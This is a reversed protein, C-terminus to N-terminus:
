GSIAFRGIMVRTLVISGFDGTEILNCLRLLQMLVQWLVYRVSSKVSWFGPGTPRIECNFYGATRMLQALNSPSYGTQHTIDGYYITAGFPSALNPVQVILAGKEKLGLQAEKAFKFGEEKSLHELVDIAFILEFQEKSKEFYTRADSVEAVLGRSRCVAIAEERFDIGKCNTYGLKKLAALFNGEGCGIDLIPANKDAPLWNRLYWSYAHSWDELEPPCTQNARYNEYFDM